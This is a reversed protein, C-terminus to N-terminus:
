DHCFGAGSDSFGDPEVPHFQWEYRDPYLTLALVGFEGSNRVESNPLPAAFGRQSAGGTGVVFQRIGGDPDPNGAPDQPAFREYDHDHGSFVVEAGYEYLAQWFADLWHSNGALGSTWRPHHWYALTCRAESAALDSRLWQVQPSSPGCGDINLCNSNLVVVHWGGVDYSYYGKGIKGAMEGFYQYYSAADKETYYDHNGPAPRIMGRFQGWSADFCTIYEEFTGEGNTNDGATFVVDPRIDL